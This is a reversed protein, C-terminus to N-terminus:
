ILSFSFVRSYFNRCFVKKKDAEIFLDGHNTHILHSVYINNIM